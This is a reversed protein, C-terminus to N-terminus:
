EGGYGAKGLLEVMAGLPVIALTANASKEGVGVPWYVVVPLMGLESSFTWAQRVFALPSFERATKCEWVIGPTNLVDSGNRGSGASEARPWWQRLYAALANQLRLGRDRSV